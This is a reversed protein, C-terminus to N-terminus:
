HHPYPLLMGTQILLIEPVILADTRVMNETSRVLVKIDLPAQLLGREVWLIVMIFELRAKLSLKHQGIILLMIPVLRQPNKVMTTTAKLFLLRLFLMREDNGLV